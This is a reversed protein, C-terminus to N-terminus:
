IAANLWILKLHEDPKDQPEKVFGWLKGDECIACYGNCKYMDICDEVTVNALTQADFLLIEDM